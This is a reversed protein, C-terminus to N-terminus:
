CDQASAFIGEWLTQGLEPIWCELGMEKRPVRLYHAHHICLERSLTSTQSQWLTLVPEELFHYSGWALGWSPWLVCIRSEAM